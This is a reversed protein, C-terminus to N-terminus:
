YPFEPPPLPSGISAIYHYQQQDNGGEAAAAVLAGANRAQPAVQTSATM